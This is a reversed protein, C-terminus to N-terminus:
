CKRAHLDIIAEGEVSFARSLEGRHEISKKEVMAVSGNSSVSARAAAEM